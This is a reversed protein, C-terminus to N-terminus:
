DLAFFGIAIIEDLFTFSHIYTVLWNEFIALLFIFLFFM